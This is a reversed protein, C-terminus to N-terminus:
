RIQPDPKLNRKYVNFAISCASNKLTTNRDCLGLDAKKCEKEGKHGQSLVALVKLVM